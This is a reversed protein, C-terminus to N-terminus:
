RADGFVQYAAWSAPPAGARIEDIQSNRLAEAPPLDRFYKYFGALMQGSFDKVPWQTAVVASAGALRWARALGALGVGSQPGGATSCGTMVVLAGPVSLLGIDTETLNEPQGHSDLSFVLAAQDLPGEPMLVHTALHIV